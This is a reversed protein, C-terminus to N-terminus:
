SIKKMLKHQITRVILVPFVCVMNWINRLLYVHVDLGYDELSFARVPTAYKIRSTLRLDNNVNKNHVVEIWYYGGRIDEMNKVVKRWVTHPRAEITQFTGDRRECLTQFHNHPYNMKLVLKRNEFYQLGSFLTYLGERGSEKIRTQLIEIARCHFADDNDLNTTVIFRCDDPTQVNIYEHLIDIWQEAEERKILIVSIQPLQRRYKEFETLFEHPTDADFLCLWTFDPCTQNKMSPFCYTDFLRFREKLWSETDVSRGNKDEKYIKINFLTIVYHRLTTM